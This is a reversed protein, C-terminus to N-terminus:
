CPARLPPVLAALAAALAAALVSRRRPRMM